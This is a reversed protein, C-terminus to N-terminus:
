LIPGSERIRDPAAAGMSRWVAHALVVAAWILLALKMTTADIM